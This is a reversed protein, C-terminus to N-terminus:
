NEEQYALYSLHIHGSMRSHAGAFVVDFNNLALLIQCEHTPLYVKWKSMTRM